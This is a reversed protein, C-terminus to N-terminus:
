TFFPLPLALPQRGRIYRRVTSPSILRDLRLGSMGLRMMFFYLPQGLVTMHEGYRVVASAVDYQLFKAPLAAELYPQGIVYGPMRVGGGYQERVTHGDLGYATKQPMRIQLGVLYICPYGAPLDAAVHFDQGMLRFLHLLLYAIGDSPLCKRFPRNEGEEDFNTRGQPVGRKGEPKRCFIETRRFKRGSFRESPASVSTFPIRFAFVAVSTTCTHCPFSSDPLGKEHRVGAHFRNGRRSHHLSEQERQMAYAPQKAWIWTRRYQKERNPGNSILGTGTIFM